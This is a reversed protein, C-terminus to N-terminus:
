WIENHHRFIEKWSYEISGQVNWLFNNEYVFYNHNLTQRRHVCFLFSSAELYSKLKTYSYTYMYKRNLYFVKKKYKM